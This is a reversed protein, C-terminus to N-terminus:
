ASPKACIAYGDDFVVRWAGDRELRWTSYFRLGVSGDPAAVPGTSHALDGSALVVVLDPKWSFPAKPGQYFRAWHAKVADRGVLPRGGNTFVAEESVFRAFAELDRDAMTKAFAIEAATVAAVADAHNMRTPTSSTSACAPLALASSAFLFRRRAVAPM